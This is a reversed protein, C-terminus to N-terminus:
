NEKKGDTVELYNAASLFLDKNDKLLGLARNCSLCLLGRVKGTIHNHDVHLANTFTDKHVKCIACCNNQLTLMLRYQDLNIGYDSMLAASKVKDPNKEKWRRKNSLTRERKTSRYSTLYEERCSKCKARGKYFESVPKTISCQNCTKM